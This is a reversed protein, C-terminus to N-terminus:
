NRDRRKREERKKLIPSPDENFEDVRISMYRLIDENIRHTREIEHIVDSHANVKLLSYHAKRNKNMRYALNRLGWYEAGEVTGGMNEIKTALNQVFEEVASSSVDPRTIVVHEYLSM